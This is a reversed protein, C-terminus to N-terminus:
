LHREEEMHAIWYSVPRKDFYGQHAEARSFLRPSGPIYFICLSYDLYQMHKRNLQCDKKKRKQLYIKKRDIM